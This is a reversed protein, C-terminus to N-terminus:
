RSPGGPKLKEQANALNSLLRPDRPHRELGRGLAAAAEANRNQKILLASLNTLADAHDPHRALVAKFAEEAEPLRNLALLAAGRGLLANEFGPHRAIASEFAELAEQPRALGLLAKGLNFADRADPLRNKQLHVLGLMFHAEASRPDSELARRYGKEAEDIRGEKHAAIASQLHL